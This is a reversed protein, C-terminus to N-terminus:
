NNEKKIKIDNEQCRVKFYKIFKKHIGENQNPRSYSFSPTTIGFGDIILLSNSQPRVNAQLIFKSGTFNYGDNIPYGELLLIKNVKSLGLKYILISIV